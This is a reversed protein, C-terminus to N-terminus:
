KKALEASTPKSWCKSSAMWPKAGQKEYLYRAYAVNDDLDHLDLGLETATEQHFYLNIQMVGRDLPTVEGKLIQGSKNLHRNRSECYAIRAMVPIDAFYDAIFREVNEPDSIPQYNESKVAEHPAQIEVEPEVPNATSTIAPMVAMAGSSFSMLLSITTLQLIFTPYVKLRPNGHGSIVSEWNFLWCISVGMCGIM